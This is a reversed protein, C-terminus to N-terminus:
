GRKCHRGYHVYLRSRSGAKLTPQQAHRATTSVTAPAESQKGYPTCPPFSPLLPIHPAHLIESSRGDWVIHM